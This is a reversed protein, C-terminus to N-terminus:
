HPQQIPAFAGNPDDLAPYNNPDDVNSLPYNNPDIITAL